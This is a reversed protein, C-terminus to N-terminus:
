RRMLLFPNTSIQHFLVGPGVIRSLNYRAAGPKQYIYSNMLIHNLAKTDTTYLRTM